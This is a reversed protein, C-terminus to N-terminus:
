RWSMANQIRDAGFMENFSQEASAADMAAPRRRDRAHRDRASRRDRGELEALRGGQGGSVGNRPMVGLVSEIEEDSCGRDEMFSRMRERDRDHDPHEDDIKDGYTKGGPLHEDLMDVAAQYHEDELCRSLLDELKARLEYLDREQEPQEDRGGRRMSRMASDLAGRPDVGRPAKILYLREANRGTPSPCPMITPKM